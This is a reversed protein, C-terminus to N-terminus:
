IGAHLKAYLGHMERIGFTGRTFSPIERECLCVCVCATRGRRNKEVMANRVDYVENEVAYSVYTEARLLLARFFAVASM